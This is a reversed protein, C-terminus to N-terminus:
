LDKSIPFCCLKCFWGPFYWTNTLLSLSCSLIHALTKLTAERPLSLCPLSCPNLVPLKFINLSTLAERLAWNTFFRGAICSVVGTQNWPQSPGRSFPYAVWELIRAQLIGHAIYDLPNRLTPCSKAVKVRVKVESVWHPWPSANERTTLYRVM